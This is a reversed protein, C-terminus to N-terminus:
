AADDPLFFYCGIFLSITRGGHGHYYFVQRNNTNTATFETHAAKESGIVDVCTFKAPTMVRYGGLTLQRQFSPLPIRSFPYRVRTSWRRM